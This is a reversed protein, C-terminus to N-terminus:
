NPEHSSACCSKVGSVSASNMMSEDPTSGVAPSRRSEIVLPESTTISPPVDVTPAISIVSTCGSEVRTVRMACIVLRTSMTPM